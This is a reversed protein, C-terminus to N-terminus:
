EGFIDDLQKKIAALKESVESDTGRVSIYCKILPETGSPRLILQSGDDSNYRLVNSKPLDYQTQTLFDCCAVVKGNGVSELPTKRLQVFLQEKRQAGEVGSFTYSVTQQVFNGLEERLEQLRQVLTRGQKKYYAVCQCLLMAAVVGDKDRVYSGKLYGCSEEFGFVFRNEEGKDELKKITNGIYKFGTLVDIVQAGRKSCLADIMLTTVITKVVVPNQPLKGQQKMSTLIYDCLLVGVENGTLIVYKEGDYVAVGLRDCDPDNAFVVDAVHSNALNLALTLAEKKEPNPYPCTPFNGDPYAQEPVVTLGDLGVRKLVEPVVRYGAGNLPSYVAKIGEASNLGQAIVSQKYREEMEEDSYVILGNEYDDFRPIPSQFPDVGEIVATLENAANDTLQCGESDYVKYGNYPSANHSATINIGMDTHYNRVMFSLYPTPMCERTFYVKIGHSALTASVVQSFMRSNNRSDYTIACSTMNYRKMYLAVGTTARFLTYVNIRNTGAEMIGRMGATGFEIDKYFADQMNEDNDQMKLLSERVSEDVAKELWLQYQQKYDAM